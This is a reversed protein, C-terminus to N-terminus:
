GTGLSAAPLPELLPRRAAAPLRSKPNTPVGEHNQPTEYSLREFIMLGLIPVPAWGPPCLLSKFDDGTVVVRGGMPVFPTWADLSGMMAFQCNTTDLVLLGVTLPYRFNLVMEVPDGDLVCIPTTRVALNLRAELFRTKVSPHVRCWDDCAYVGFPKATLSMGAAVYFVAQGEGAGLVVACQGDPLTSALGLLHAGEAETLPGPIDSLKM